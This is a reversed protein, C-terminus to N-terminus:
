NHILFIRFTTRHRQIQDRHQYYMKIKKRSCKQHNKTFFQDHIASQQPSCGEQRPIVPVAEHQQAHLTMWLQQLVVRSNGLLAQTRALRCSRCTKFEKRCTVRESDQVKVSVWEKACGDVDM